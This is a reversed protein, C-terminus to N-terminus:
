EFGAVKGKVRDNLLWLDTTEKKIDRDVIVKKIGPLVREMTELYLRIDTIERAKRYEALKKLYAEAEGRANNIKKVRYGEALNIMAAAKGGAETVIQNWYEEAEHIYTQKEEMASAIDRFADAVEDPPDLALIQVNLVNTGSKDRDLLEQVSQKTVKEVEAKGSTLLYSASEDEGIIRMRGIINRAATEANNLVLKEPEQTNFLYDAPDKVNYHIGIRVKILNEDGAVILIPPTELERVEDIKVKEVTEVPWPIHYNIGPQVINMERGFRKLVGIENWKVTYIGTASYLVLIAAIFSGILKYNREIHCAHDMPYGSTLGRYGRFLISFGAYIVYALVFAAAFLNLKEMGIWAGVLGIIVAAEMFVHLQCHRGAAEISSSGCAKGVYIKYQSMFYCVGAGFVAAITVAPIYLLEGGSHGHGSISQAGHSVKIFMQVFMNGAIYLIFISIAIALANEIVSLRKLIREDRVSVVVGLLVISTLFFNEVSMWGSAKIAMSGSISALTFKLAILFLNACLVILLANRKRIYNEDIPIERAMPESSKLERSLIEMGFNEQRLRLDFYLLTTGIIFLPATFLLTLLSIAIGAAPISSIQSGIVRAIWMPIVMLLGLLLLFGFVRWWNERVLERSRRLSSIVSRNEVAVVQVFLSWKVLVWLFVAAVPILLIAGAAGAKLLGIRTLDFGVILSSAFVSTGLLTILGPRNMWGLVQKFPTNQKLYALSIAFTLTGAAVSGLIITLFNLLLSFGQSQAKGFGALIIVPSLFIVLIGLFLAAKDRYLETSAKFIDGISMQKMENQDIM